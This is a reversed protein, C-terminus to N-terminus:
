ESLLKSLRLRTILRQQEAAAEIETEPDNRLRRLLIELIELASKDAACVIFIYGFRSEYKRNAEALAAHMSSAAATVGAQEQRSWKSESREGIRPHASFAELWDQHSCQSWIRDAAAEMEAISGFPRALAMCRAWNSSGCCSRFQDRADKLSCKNLSRLKMRSRDIAEFASADFSVISRELAPFTLHESASM